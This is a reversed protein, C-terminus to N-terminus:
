KDNNVYKKLSLLVEIKKILTKVEFPKPLYDDIGTAFIKKRNESSDYGTIAMIPIHKTDAGTKISQCLEFGSMGSMMLDTIILDPLINKIEDLAKQANKYFVGVYGAAEFINALVDAVDIDDEVVVIKKM